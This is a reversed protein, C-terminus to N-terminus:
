LRFDSEKSLGNIWARYAEKGQYYGRCEEAYFSEIYTRLSTKLVSLTSPRDQKEGFHLIIFPWFDSFLYGENEEFVIRWEEALKRKEAQEQGSKSEQEAEHGSKDAQELVDFIEKDFYTRCLFRNGNDVYGTIIGWEPAVRLNIALVAKGNRIDGMIDLREAKRDQKELREAVRFSYGIAQYLPTAYDFAVLADTCSYDWVDTFCVRFCAGSMGMIQEYTYPEGM